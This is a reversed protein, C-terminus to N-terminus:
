PLYAEPGFAGDTMPMLEIFRMEVPYRVTLGALEPIEDDNFGGILVANLKIKEFGTELATEVGRLVEDLSGLRTIYRFKAWRRGGDIALAEYLGQDINCIVGLYIISSWGISKWISTLINM